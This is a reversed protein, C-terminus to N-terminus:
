KKSRMRISSELNQLGSLSSERANRLTSIGAAKGTYGDVEYSIKGGNLFVNQESLRRKILGEVPISDATYVDMFGSAIKSLIKPDYDTKGSRARALHGLAKRFKPQNHGSNYLFSLSAVQEDPTLADFDIGAINIDSNGNKMFGIFGMVTQRAQEEEPLDKSINFMKLTEDKIHYKGSTRGVKEEGTLVGRASEITFLDDMARGIVDDQLAKVKQVQAEQRSEQQVAM